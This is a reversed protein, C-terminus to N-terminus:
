STCRELSAITRFRSGFAQEIGRWRAAPHRSTVRLLNEVFEWAAEDHDRHHTLLGVPEDPDVVGTRRAQLHGILERLVKKRGAFGTRGRWTLVDVHTNMM